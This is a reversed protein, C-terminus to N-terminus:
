DIDIDDEDMVRSTDIFTLVLGDATDPSEVKEGEEAKRNIMEEKPEIQIKLTSNQRYMILKLEDWGDKEKVEPAQLLYNSGENLWKRAEWYMYARINMMSRPIPQGNPQKGEGFLVVQVLYGRRTLIPGLGHGVGGGDIITFYDLIGWKHIVQECADAVEELDDTTLTAATIAIHHKPFRVILKTENKGGGAVDVGLLPVDDVMKHGWQNVLPNGDTDMRYRWVVSKVKAADVVLDSILRRYGNSLVETAEPFQCEYLWEFGAEQKMEAIFDESYRGEALAMYCDRFVKMYREGHWTRHFHNRYSPNGIELIFGEEGISTDVAGGVMRKITAYLTDSILAAEDLIVNPAGFGMLAAKVQKTNGADASYVRVEGAGRFSIRSKNRHQKLKEKTDHFELLEEFLPDDFIHEIIYDM